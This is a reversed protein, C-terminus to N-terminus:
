RVAELPLVMTKEMRTLPWRGPLLASTCAMSRMASAMAAASYGQMPDVFFRMLLKYSTIALILCRQIVLLAETGKDDQAFRLSTSPGANRKRVFPHSVEISFKILM